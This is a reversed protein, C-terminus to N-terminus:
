EFKYIGRGDSTVVTFYVEGQEDEGFSTVPLMPSPISHNSVVQQRQTDYKLAWIKGTVFDAYLYCGQLEPLRSGRYVTGGTISKGVEHDYEFVPEILDPRRDAGNAGFTHEGERLNWGYNGGRQIIDIEEWLNQGVDGCWMLGTKRDFAIRWPNRIGYAWIEGRAGAQEVFPNDSPIAYPQGAEKRDVDIRLISGFLTGLNQGNDHPDNASGGDGLGIYLYGDPGFCITGGNHNWFPQKIRLLEEESSLDARNPDDQSVRFRSIVSQHPPDTYYVFFEGNNEYNPHFALGLLGEEFERDKYTTKNRIDMFVKTKTVAPDNQFAHIVGRQAIVFIRNSGDGANTLYIPRLPQPLGRDDVPSWGTWSLKPFALVPSLALSGDIPEPVPVGPPLERLKINRFAVENGHDQLCIHGRTAKGFQPFKSFKSAAVLQDWKRSGKVFRYYRIGNMNLEGGDPTVRLHIHNWEGAPRTADTNSKYLQYLWGSKQPDHGAANDQIQVEPGSHWPRQNDETVHFMLGSNGGESIRYELSLEFSDFQDVTIIDGAKKATWTLAGDIVKWGDGVAQQQYNRWGKTSKGDFLLKWGAKQESASLRNQGAQDAQTSETFALLLLAATILSFSLTAPQRM